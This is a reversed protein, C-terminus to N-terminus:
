PLFLSQRPSNIQRAKHPEHPAQSVSGWSFVHLKRGEGGGGGRREKQPERGLKRAHLVSFIGKGQREKSELKVFFALEEVAITLRACSVM